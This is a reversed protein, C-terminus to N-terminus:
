PQRLPSHALLEGAVRAADYGHGAPLYVVVVVTPGNAPAFGAFWGHSPGGEVASATGTKGAVPVGGLGAAGAMGYSASDALGAQVTEAAMGPHAVMQGALWRYAEALELPTVRVGAVGLLALRTEDATLPDRFEAYAEGAALGSAGLLGTPALLARLQWPPVSGAVASFYSNCSWALARRADMPEGAPHSCNLTHGAITLSRTCGIRRAPDWRGLAVLGYLALPKMTSGPTALTRAAEALHRAALLRGTAADLVVIRAKPALRGARAVAAPWTPAPQAPHCFAGSLSLSVVAAISAGRVGLTDM